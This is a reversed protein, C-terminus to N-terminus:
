PSERERDDEGLWRELEVPADLASFDGHELMARAASAMASVAVWTLRGGVSVRRGGARTIEALTLDPGALVNLPNSTAQAVASIEDASRLGPAYIVDAGAEAVRTIALAAHEPDPGHGHELDVSLPLDTASALARAHGIVEDLAAASDSRGLTFAFGSSTSALAEFGLAALVKASGADWPNPIIFPEGLHLARFRAGREHQTPPM